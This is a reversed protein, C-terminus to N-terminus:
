PVLPYTQLCAVTEATGGTITGTWELQNANGDFRAKVYSAECNFTKNNAAETGAATITQWASTDIDGSAIWADACSMVTVGTNMTAITAKMGKVFSGSPDLDGSSPCEWSTAVQTTPLEVVAWAGAQCTQFQKAETVYV